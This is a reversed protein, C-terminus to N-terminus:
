KEVEVVKKRNFVKKFLGVILQKYYDLDFLASDVTAKYTLFVGVPTLIIVAMWMGVVPDLSGEKASKEAVTSIIHYFLFFIVAIVVPLGLGGKRIIAGLPAGIFFLLLCSVALTYKRQYEIKAKLVEKSRFEYDPLQGKITQKLADIQDFAGQLAQVKQDKPIFDIVSGKITKVPANIKSYGKVITSQKFYYQANTQLAKGISDLGKSLSDRRQLLEKRNLMPANNKFNQEQTRTMDKFSSFDFKVETQKFRMRTLTQRPNYAGNNSGAEQYRVGNVLNLVMYNGDSTKSMKGKEAMIIQPIGNGSSHDYIMIGYLSDIAGEGKREVRMSYGPISNNFVGPKILFSLKKNRVDWLLSGYKLNAKPLMYDSFFFSAVALGVILVLLPQMAKRLSVGASKIAVLEYNEGLNGFTMISSLLIALPLAMAVNSASAYMMLEAIVYWEFGKGILDDVYKFLFFMLLIFMVIFFTVAFPRIFAKILLLHIKKM